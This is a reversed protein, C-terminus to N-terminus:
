THRCAPSVQEDPVLWRHYCGPGALYTKSTLTPVAQATHAGKIFCVTGHGPSTAALPASMATVGTGVVIVVVADLRDSQETSEGVGM